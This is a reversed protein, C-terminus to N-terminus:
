NNLYLEFYKCKSVVEKYYQTRNMKSLLAYYDNDDSVDDVNYGYAYDLHYMWNKYSELYFHIGRHTTKALAFTLKAKLEKDKALAFGKRYYSYADGVTSSFYDNGRYYGEDSLNFFFNGLLFAAKAAKDKDSSQQVTKNLDRIYEVYTLFLTEKTPLTGLMEKIYDYYFNNKEEEDYYNFGRINSCFACKWTVSPTNEMIKLRNYASDVYAIDLLGDNKRRHKMFLLTKRYNLSHLQIYERDILWKEFPSKDKKNVFDILRNCLDLDYVEDDGYYYMVHGIM